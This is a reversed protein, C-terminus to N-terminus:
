TEGWSVFFKNLLDLCDQPSAPASERVLAMAISLLYHYRKSGENQAKKFAKHGSNIVVTEGDIWSLRSDTPAELWGVKPGFHVTRHRSSSYETGGESVKLPPPEESEPFLSLREKESEGQKDGKSKQPAAKAEALNEGSPDLISIEQQVKAAFITSLEPLRGLIRSIVKEIEATDTTAEPKKEIKGLKELWNGFRKQMDRRFGNYRRGETGVKIFDSKTTTLVKSLYPVEVYGSLKQMDKPYAGFFERNVVKGYTCIGVGHMEEPFSSKGLVFFGTGTTRPKRKGRQLLFTEINEVRDESYPNEFTLKKGNIHFELPKPYIGSMIYIQSLYPDLLPYYHRRIIREVGPQQLISYKSAKLHFTTKTGSGALTRKPLERWVLENKEFRWESFGSFRASKTETEVKDSMWLALKAGLGAFGIGEGRKKFSMAFDHYDSFGRRTMGSGNDVLDFVKKERDFNIDIRSSKADLSNAILEVLAAEDAGFPYLEIQDRIFHKFNVNSKHKKTAKSM